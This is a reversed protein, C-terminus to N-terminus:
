RAPLVQSPDLPKGQHRLEFHLVVDSSDSNGMEAVKQGRQVKDGEKVLIQSNHAYVSLYGKDHKIVLMRGYGRLSNGVYSVVGSAAARVPQGLVGALDIGKSDDSYAKAIAGNVPWSWELLPLPGPAKTSREGSATGPAAGSGSDSRLPTAIAVQDDGAAHGVAQPPALGATSALPPAAAPRATGASGASRGGPSGAQAGGANGGPGRGAVPALVDHSMVPSREQVPAPRYAGACGSLVAVAIGSAAAARRALLAARM